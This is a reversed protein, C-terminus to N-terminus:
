FSSCLPHNLGDSNGTLQAVDAILFIRGDETVQWGRAQEFREPSTPQMETVSDVKETANDEVTAWEVMPNVPTLSGQQSLPLGGKGVIEFTSGDAFNGEKNLNCSDKDILSAVDIPSEPLENLGQTADVEGLEIDVLGNAQAGLNSFATIDSLSSQTTRFEIGFISTATIIIEGGEGDFANATIDSNEEPPAVIFQSIININGGDGAVQGPIGASASIKSGNRLLLIHSIDLTIDGSIGSQTEAIISSRNLTLYNSSLYIDGVLDFNENDNSDLSDLSVTKATITSDSLTIRNVAEGEILGAAGLDANSSISSQNSLTINNGAKLEIIGALGEGKAATSLKGNNLLISGNSATVHIAGGDAFDTFGFSESAVKSNTLFVSNGAQVEILGAQGKDAGSELSSNNTLNIDKGAKLNINGAFGNDFATASFITNQLNLSGSNATFAIEGGGGRRSFGLSISSVETNIATISNAVTAEILGASGKEGDSYLFSNELTLNEGTQFIINGAIAGVLDTSVDITANKLLTSQDSIIQIKGESASLSGGITVQGGQLILSQGINVELNAQSAIQRQQNELAHNFLAGPQVNLLSSNAIDIASYFAINGLQIADATTATFSGGLNLQADPGFHIGNPNILILNANNQVGLTGFIYSPNGGTIRTIINEISPLQQFIATQNGGINFEQFSHFLNINRVAGGQIVTTSPNITNIVSRELGLTNDPIIQSDAKEVWTLLSLLTLLTIPKFLSTRDSM